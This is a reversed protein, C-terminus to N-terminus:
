IAHRWRRRILLFYDRICVKKKTVVDEASGASFIGKGSLAVFSMITWYADRRHEQFLLCVPVIAGEACQRRRSTCCSSFCVLVWPSNGDEGPATVLFAGLCMRM